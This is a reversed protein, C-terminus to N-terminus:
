ELFSSRGCVFLDDKVMTMWFDRSSALIMFRSVCFDYTRKKLTRKKTKTMQSTGLPWFGELSPIHSIKLWEEGIGRKCRVIFIPCQDM